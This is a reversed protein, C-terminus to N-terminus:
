VKPIEGLVPLELAELEVTSRIKPDFYHALFALLLGFVGALAIRIVADFLSNGGGIGIVNSTETILPDGLPVVVMNEGDNQPFIENNRTQMIETGVAIIDELYTDDDMEVIYDFRSRAFGAEIAEELDEVTFEIGDKALAKQIEEAFGRSRVWDYMGAVMYESTIWRAHVPDINLDKLDDASAEPPLGVLYNATATYTVNITPADAPQLMPIATLVGVIFIPIAALWWWRRLILFYTRLDDM